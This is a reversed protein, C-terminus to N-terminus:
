GVRLKFSVVVVADDGKYVFDSWWLWQGRDSGQDDEWWQLKDRRTLGFERMEELYEGGGMGCVDVVCVYSGTLSEGVCSRWVFWWHRRLLASSTHIRHWRYVNYGSGGGGGKWSQQIGEVTLAWGDDDENKDVYLNGGVRADDMTSEWVKRCHIYM